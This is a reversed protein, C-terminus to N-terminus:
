LSQRFLAIDVLVIVVMMIMSVLDIVIPGQPLKTQLQNVFAVQLLEYSLVLLRSLLMCATLLLSGRNVVKAVDCLAEIIRRCVGIYRGREKILVKKNHKKEEQNLLIRSHSFRYFPALM